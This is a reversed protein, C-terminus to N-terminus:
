ESGEGGALAVDDPNAINFSLQIEPKTVSPEIDKVHAVSAIRLSANVMASVGIKTSTGTLSVDFRWKKIGGANWSVIFIPV